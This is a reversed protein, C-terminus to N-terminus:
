IRIALEAGAPAPADNPRRFLLARNAGGVAERIRLRTPQDPPIPQMDEPRALVKAGASESVAQLRM